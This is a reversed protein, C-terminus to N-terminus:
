WRQYPPFDNTFLRIVKNDTYAAWMFLKKEIYKSECIVGLDTILNQVHANQFSEYIALSRHYIFLSMCTSTFDFINRGQQVKVIFREGNEPPPESYKPGVEELRHHHHNVSIMYEGKSPSGCSRETSTLLVSSQELLSRCLKKHRKWHKKQCARGCYEASYCKTCKKLTGKKQCCSCFKDVNQLFFNQHTRTFEVENHYMLNGCCKASVLTKELQPPLIPVNCQFPLVKNAPFVQKSLLNNLDFDNLNQILGPGGNDDIKNYEVVSPACGSPRKGIRIGGLRNGSVDNKSIHCCSNSQLWIGWCSNEFIRNETILASSDRVSIGFNDNHFIYNNNLQIDANDHECEKVFIGESANCNMQSNTLVCKKAKPGVLLGQRNNYSHVNKALLTGGQRVELGALGNNSFTCNEVKAAGAVCLFGGAGSDRFDCNEVKTVGLANLSPYSLNRSSFGCNYLLAVSTPLLNANGQDFLFSMNALACKTHVFLRSDDKVSVRIRSDQTQDGCGLVVCNDFVVDRTIEYTGPYLFLVRKCSPMTNLAQLLDSGSYCFRACKELYSFKKFPDYKSFVERALNYTQSAALEAGLEDNLGHLALTKRAYGKWCKPCKSIYAKADELAKEYLHLRLYASARNSFFRPDLFELKKKRDIASSYAEVAKQFRGEGFLKNGKERLKEFEATEVERSEPSDVCVEVKHALHPAKSCYQIHRRIFEPLPLVHPFISNLPKASLFDNEGEPFWDLIKVAFSMAQMAEEHRCFVSLYLAHQYVVQATEPHFVTMEKNNCRELLFYKLNKEIEGAHMCLTRWMYFLSPNTYDVLNMGRDAVSSLLEDPSYFESLSHQLLRVADIFSEEQESPTLNEKIVDLVLRHVQLCRSSSQKFLSFDTLLKFIQYRGLSTGVFIRFQEDNVPPEGINILDEQIENPNFFLCANLFRIANRGESNQMIYDINLLWTTQVTLREPSSYESVPKTAQQNLLALRKTKYTELYSSFSCGLSKIYAAAQELALPLGGLEQFLKCAAAETDDTLPIGTRSLLFEKADYVDFCQLELCSNERMEQVQVDNVFTSPKRRTTVIIHGYNYKKQWSGSLLKRVSPSLQLEDMDDIILLWPKQIRSIRALTQSLTVDFSNSVFTGITLALSNVSNELKTEDEGSFWFVGGQYYNKMRHAYEVALSTKGSGGLGCIAAKRASSQHLQEDSKLIVEIEKIQRIRGTFWPFTAPANFVYVDEKDRKFFFESRLEEIDRRSSIYRSLLDSQSACLGQVKLDTRAQSEKLKDIEGKLSSNIVSLREL